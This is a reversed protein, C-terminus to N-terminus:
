KIMRTLNVTTVPGTEKGTYQKAAKRASRRIVEKIVDDDKLHKRSALELGDHIKDEIFSELTGPKEEPLGITTIELPALLLGNRDMIAHIVLAGNFLVRRREVIAMDDDKILIAGDLAMRGSPVENIIGAPGPALKVVSGNKPVITKKYGLRSALEAQKMMHSQEGHTPVVIEPRIWEYMQKLEEQGPHGSVHVFANKETIVEVSKEILMNHMRAIPLENGPIIKSSFVVTDNKAVHVKKNNDQLIRMLAARAEGQCGTCVYFLKHRPLHSANEETLIPPFSKLYGCERAAAVNRKISRGVLCLHRGMKEAVYALTEVRAVNSSFTTCFIAGKKDKLLGELSERVALESGSPKENFVNTSDCVIALVGADGIEKLRKEDTAAGVIPAPDLKWDGTHFVTGLPTSIRLANPEPISHTLTVYEIEFDGLDFTGGLDIEHIIVEDLLGADKLKARLIIASFPTVYIPCRFRPWLHVVAGIHDEHAHTIVLGLLDDKIKEVFSVDPMILDIGPLYEDAFSIGCDVMIWQKGYSYLNLNMGIEGSGGLPLFILQKYDKAM